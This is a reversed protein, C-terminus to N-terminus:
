GEGVFFKDESCCKFEFSMKFKNCASFEKVYKFFSVATLFAPSHQIGSQEKILETDKMKIVCINKDVAYCPLYYTQYRGHKHMDMQQLCEGTKVRQGKALTTNYTLTM